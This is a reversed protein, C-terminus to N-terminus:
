VSRGLAESTRTTTVILARELANLHTQRLETDVCQCGRAIIYSRRQVYPMCTREQILLPLFILRHVGEWNIFRIISKRIVDCTNSILIM